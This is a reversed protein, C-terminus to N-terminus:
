ARPRSSVRDAFNGKFHATDVEIKRIRGPHALAIICWDNGPERRRRTGLRRGHQHRPGADAPQFGARLAPQQGRGRLRREGDRGPRVAHRPGRGELRGATPWVRAPARHRRGPLHERAPPHLRPHRVRGSLPPQQGALPPRFSRPGSRPTPRSATRCTPPTSPRPRRSTAPSTAPISTWARSWARGPWSSSATTMAATAAAAREWGDMWKGHDDYKGPIFVAPEPNLMRDKPAFFEDTAFTAVAGLRPDALNPYRRTFDPANPDLTPMAM